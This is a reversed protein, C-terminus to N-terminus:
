TRVENGFIVQDLLEANTRFYVEQEKGVVKSEHIRGLATEEDGAYHGLMKKAYGNAELVISYDSDAFQALDDFPLVLKRVSLASTLSARYGMFVVNGVFFVTFALVRFHGTSPPRSGSFFINRVRLKSEPCLRM